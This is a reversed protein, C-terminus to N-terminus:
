TTKTYYLTVYSTTFINRNGSTRIHINTMDAFVGVSDSASAWVFPLPLLDGNTGMATGNLAVLNSINAIGHAIHSDSNNPLMGTSVTKKYIHKGDVWTFGTDVESLSYNGGFATKGAVVAEDAIDATEIYGNQGYVAIYNGAELPSGEGPDTSTMTINAANAVSAVPFINNDDKDKLQVIRDAM